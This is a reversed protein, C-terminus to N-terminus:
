GKRSQGLADGAGLANPPSDIWLLSDGCLDYLDRFFRLSFSLSKRQAKRQAEAAERSVLIRCM